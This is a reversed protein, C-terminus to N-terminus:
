MWSKEASEIKFLAYNYIEKAEKQPIHKIFERGAATYFIVNALGRRKQFWNQSYKVSQLKYWKILSKSPFLWGWQLQLIEANISLINSKYFRYSWWIAIPFYILSWWWSMEAVYSIALWLVVPVLGYFGFMRWFFYTDPQLELPQETTEREPYFANLVTKLHDDNCGPVKASKKERHEMSTAQKIVLTHIGLIKRLPNSKWKLYQIKNVPIQFETRKLLGAVIQAGKENIFFRLNFYRLFTQLLSTLISLIIFLLLLAPIILFMETLWLAANEEFFPEWLELWYDQFQWLYGNVFAFVVFGNRIHNETLGIRLLDKIGFQLLPQDTGSFSSVEAEEIASNPEEEMETGSVQTKMEILFEQLQRAHTKSLAPIEIEKGASGATDVSVAFVGFLQQIVNQKLNVTQIREFPINIKERSLVGREIVFQDSAVFFQFRLYQLISIILYLLAILTALVPLSLGLFSSKFGFEVLVVSVFINIGKRLNKAFIVAVGIPSQRQPLEFLESSM